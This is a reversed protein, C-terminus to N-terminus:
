SSLETVICSKRDKGTRGLYASFERPIRGTTAGTWDVFTGDTAQYRFIYRPRTKGKREVSATKDEALGQFDSLSYGLDKIQKTIEALAKKKQARKEELEMAESLKEEHIAEIRSIIRRLDETHTESFLKRVQVKSKMITLADNFITM